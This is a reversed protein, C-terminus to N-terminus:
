NIKWLNLENTRKLPLRILDSCLDLCIFSLKPKWNHNADFVKRRENNWLITKIAFSDIGITCFPKDTDLEVFITFCAFFVNVYGRWWGILGFCQTNKNISFSAISFFTWEVHFCSKFEFSWCCSQYILKRMFEAKIRSFM